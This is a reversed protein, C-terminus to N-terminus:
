RAAREVFEFFEDGFRDYLAMLPTERHRELYRLFERAANQVDTQETAYGGAAFAPILLDYLKLIRQFEPIIHES